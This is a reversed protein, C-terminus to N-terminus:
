NNKKALAFLSVGVPFSIKWRLLFYNELKLLTVLARNIFSPPLFLRTNRILATPFFLICNWYSIQRVMFGNKELLMKLEKKKYRKQHQNAIDHPSWLFPFAPVFLILEGGHRLVRKWEQLAAEEDHVHELIDSAIIIDCSGDPMDLNEASAQQVAVGRRRALNVAEESIDVGRANAFGMNKLDLLLVGGSSGIEVIRSQKSTKAIITRIAHRRGLFWWHSRELKHYLSEYDHQM